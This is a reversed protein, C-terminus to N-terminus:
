NDTIEVAIKLLTGAILDLMDLNLGEPWKPDRGQLLVGLYTNVVRSVSDRSLFFKESGTIRPDRSSWVAAIILYKMKTQWRIVCRQLGNEKRKNDSRMDKCKRM